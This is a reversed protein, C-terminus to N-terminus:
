QFLHFHILDVQVQLCPPVCVDVAIVTAYATCVKGKLKKVAYKRLEGNIRVMGKHVEGFAGEGLKEQLTVDTRPLEFWNGRTWFM